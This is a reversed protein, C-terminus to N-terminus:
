FHREVDNVFMLNIVSSAFEVM